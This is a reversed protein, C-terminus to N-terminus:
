AGASTTTSRGADHTAPGTLAPHSQRGIGGRACWDTEARTEALLSYAESIFFIHRRAEPDGMARAIQLAELELKYNAAWRAAQASGQEADHNGASM